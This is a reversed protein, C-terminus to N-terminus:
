ASLKLLVLCCLCFHCTFILHAISSWSWIFQPHFQSNTVKLKTDQKTSKKVGKLFGMNKLTDHVTVPKQKSL